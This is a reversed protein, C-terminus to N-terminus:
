SAPTEEIAPLTFWFRSGAGPSSEVGVEGGMKEVIRRVISLGLGHGEIARNQDLREFPAFLHAQKEPPIGNGNDEVWFRLQNPQDTEQDWGLVIQPPSGGYKIANSLYNVWVEEVWPPYGLAPPWTEPVSLEANRDTLLNTLRSRAEQVIAGTDLAQLTLDVRKRVGALLLLAETIADMKRASKAIIELTRLIREKPLREYQQILVDSFGLLMTVPNKLDHAVTHAFADLEANSAELQRAYTRLAANKQRTLEAERRTTEVDHILQLSKITQDAKANFVQEKLRHFEKHHHLAKALEGEAEYTQSLNQHCAFRESTADATEAAELARQLYSIAVDYHGADQHVKGIHRLAYIQTYTYAITRSLALSHEFHELAQSLEGTQLHVTGLNNHCHCALINHDTERAIDMAHQGCELAQDYNGMRRHVLTLNNLAKGMDQRRGLDEYLALAEQLNSLARGLEDLGEYVVGLGNLAQAEGAQDDLQTCLERLALFAEIAAPYNTLREYISGLGWLVLALDGQAGEAEIIARAELLESLAETYRSQQQLFYSRNRRSRAVGLAYGSTSALDFAKQTLAQGEQPDSYRLAWALVNLADVKERPETAEDLQTRLAEINKSM